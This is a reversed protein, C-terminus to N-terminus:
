RAEHDGRQMAVEREERDQEQRHVDRCRNEVRECPNPRDIRDNREAAGVSGEPEPEADEGGLHQEGDRHGAKQARPDSGADHRITWQAAYADHGSATTCPRPVPESACSGHISPRVAAHM